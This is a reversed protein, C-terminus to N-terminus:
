FLLMLPCLSTLPVKAGATTIEELINRWTKITKEKTFNERVWKYANESVKELLKPTDLLEVIKDAILKPDNSGLIFGTEGNKIIEPIGGVPTALVPTGCAMAELVVNPLGETFSPLVLLKLENLYQPVEEHAVWKMLRVHAEVGEVKMIKEAEDYLSGGGCIVFRTSTRGKLVLPIAEILNLIGKEESLRGIYGVVNSRQDIEKKITFRTFDVFHEHATLIKHQYKELNAERSLMSSYIILRDALSSNFSVSLSLFNSLPDSRMRTRYVKTAIGGLMLVVKKRLLKLALMPIVLGEGGIFFVFLDTNKSIRIAHYSIKLQTIIYNFVRLIIGTRSNHEVKTVCVNESFELNRLGFGGSILYVEKSLGCLVNVLNLLPIAHSIPFTVVGVNLPKSLTHFKTYRTGLCASEPKWSVSCTQPKRPM